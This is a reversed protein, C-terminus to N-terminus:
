FDGKRKKRAEEQEIQLVPPSPQPHPRDGPCPRHRSNPARGTTPEPAPGIALDPHLRYSSDPHPWDGPRPGLTARRQRLSIHRHTPGARLNHLGPALNPKSAGRQVWSKKLSIRNVGEFISLTWKGREIVFGPILLRSIVFNKTNEGKVTNYQTINKSDSYQTIYGTKWNLSSFGVKIYNFEGNGMGGGCPGLSEVFWEDM